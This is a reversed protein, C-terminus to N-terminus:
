LPQECVSVASTDDVAENEGEIETVQFNSSVNSHSNEDSVKAYMHHMLAKHIEQSCEPHAEAIGQLITWPQDHKNRARKLQRELNKSPKLKGAAAEKYLKVNGQARATLILEQVYM